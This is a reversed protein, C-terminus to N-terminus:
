YNEITVEVWVMLKIKNMEKRFWALNKGVNSSKSKLYFISNLHLKRDRDTNCM